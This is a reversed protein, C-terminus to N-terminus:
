QEQRVPKGMAEEYLGAYERASRGWSWDQGMGNAVLRSWDKPRGYARAAREVAVVLEAPSYRRFVFGTATGDALTDANCDVITDALGGTARVVPVTGYKLSYLQNLGCPEYHSPMLFMDCGAEIRHALENSFTLNVALKGPHRAAAAEFLEHYKQEGTGLLVMQVDLKMIEDLAADLIDFGKQAALRSIIGVLPVGDRAPLGQDDLLAKKCAAKGSLDAASYTAPILGDTEPNWVAYDIGNVVGHLDGARERLVGDLGCGFPETQIEEAYRRSVTNLVDAFVLGGKLCNLKGYFELEQWNFLKSDLGTLNMADRPFLGQYALNHVTLVTRANSAPRDGACLTQTYVPVLATQWDNCHIVDPQLGFADIAELVARAFFVFRECNDSYDANKGHDFYLGDRDYYADNAVLYLRAASGPLRSEFIQAAPRRDAIPVSVSVGTDIVDEEAGGGDFYKRAQRYFPMFVSVKHGLNQIFKPLSGAVDALGGTKAFPAVEPSVYVVNM